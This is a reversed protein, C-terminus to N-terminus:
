RLKDREDQQQKHPFCLMLESDGVRRVYTPENMGAREGRLFEDRCHDCQYRKPSKFRQWHIAAADQEQMARTKAPPQEPLAADFLPVDEFSM